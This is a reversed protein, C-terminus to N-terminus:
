DSDEADSRKPGAEMREAAAGARADAIATDSWGGGLARYLDVHAILHDRNARALEIQAAYVQREADLVELYSNVGSKYRMRQLRLNEVEANARITNQEIVARLKDISSFANSVERLANLTIARYNIAAIRAQARAANVNASGRGWDILPVSANPGWSTIDQTDGSNGLTDGLDIGVLGFFGGLGITPIPFRNAIAVGVRATAAALTNEAARVDPRRDLLESPLGLEPIAPAQPLAVQDSRQIPGPQGGLLLNLENENAVIAQEIQPLRARTGALQAIAQQEEAGTAVGGRLLSRVLDLSDEQSAINALTIAREQDLGRLSLYSTATAAVLASMLARAADESALLDARAAQDARRLKGFFDLEWTLIAGLSYSNNSIAPSGPSTSFDAAVYPFLLSRAVTSQAQFLEVRTLAVQLDLNRAVASRIVTSLEEDQFLEAWGIDVLARAQEPAVAGAYDPALGLDPRSYEPGLACAGLLLSSLLLALPKRSM